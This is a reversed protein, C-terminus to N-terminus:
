PTSSLFSQSTCTSIQTLTSSCSSLNQPTRVERTWFNYPWHTLMHNVLHKKLTLPILARFSPIPLLSRAKNLPPTMCPVYAIKPCPQKASARVYVSSGPIPKKACSVPWIACDHLTFSCASCVKRTLMAKVSASAVPRDAFSSVFM